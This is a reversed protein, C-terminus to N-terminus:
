WSGVALQWGGDDINAGREGTCQKNTTNSNHDKNDDDDDNDDDNNNDNDNDDTTNDGGGGGRGVRRRAITAVGLKKLSITTYANMEEMDGNGGGGGVNGGSVIAVVATGVFACSNVREACAPILALAALLAAAQFSM